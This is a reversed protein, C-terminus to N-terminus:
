ARGNKTTLWVAALLGAIAIGLQLYFFQYFGEVGPNNDLIRGVISYFYIDPTYGILSVVGITTGTLIGPVHTEEFLAFYIGRLAYFALFSILLNALIIGAGQTGPFIASLLVYSAMGLCFAGIITKRTSLRDAIIGAGIAGVARLYGANSVFRSAEVENMGLTLMGYQAYFDLGKYGCYACIIITAQLWTARKRLVQRLGKFPNPLRDTQTDPIIFWVLIGAAVTLLTYLWIVAQMAHKRELPSSHMVDTPMMSALIFVGVSAAGAAVLGRGGDLLGFARGQALKGGWERTTRLMSSWFLLITTFGWYGFLISLGVQNPFTSFWIGGLATAFLSLSMLKRSSFRDAIMGGPFYSLTATIGYISIADGLQSNNMQLVELLSPRFFRAVHFPLGFILEGALFLCIIIAWRGHKNQQFTHTNQQPM